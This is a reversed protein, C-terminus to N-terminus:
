EEELRKVRPFIKSLDHKVIAESSGSPSYSMAIKKLNLQRYFSYTLLTDVGRNLPKTDFRRSILHHLTRSEERRGSKNYDEFFLDRGDTYRSTWRIAAFGYDKVYRRWSHTLRSWESMRVLCPSLCHFGKTTEYVYVSLGYKSYLQLVKRLTELEKNDIDSFIFFYPLSKYVTVADLGINEVLRTLGTRTEKTGFESPFKDKGDKKLQDEQEM